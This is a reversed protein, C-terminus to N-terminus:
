QCCGTNCSTQAGIMRLKDLSEGYMEGKIELRWGQDDSLHMHLTNIKYQSLMDLQRKVQDVTFFHRTVDLMMSRFGYEPEDSLSSCPVNWTVDNVLTESEIESPFMQRLTQVGYFIGASTGAEIIVRNSTTNISYGEEAYGGDPDLRLTIDGSGATTQEVVPLDYGTSARFVEAIYEGTNLMEAKVTEDEAIVAIQADSGLTFYGETQRYERPKPILNVTSAVETTEKERIVKAYDVEGDSSTANENKRQTLQLKLTHEGYELDDVGYILQQTLRQPNYCDVDTVHEGDIYIEYIGNVVDKNGYIEYIGNVVDKNGYIEIGVGEFRIEFYPITDGEHYRAFNFWNEDGNYFQDPYGTSTVWAGVYNFQNLGNGTEADNIIIETESTTLANLANQLQECVADIADQSTSDVSAAADLADSLAAYSEETYEDEDVAQADEVLRDMLQTSARVEDLLNLDAYLMHHDSLLQPDMEVSTIEINRSVIINDIAMSGLDEDCTPYWTGDYGNAIDYHKLMPYNESVDTDTNFDGTLVKYETQDEDMIELIEALQRQRVDKNEHTLHTNYFAIEKGDETTYVARAYARAESIGESGLAAGGKDSLPSTSLIGIGYEGGGYDIAKQFHEDTFYGANIFEEMM